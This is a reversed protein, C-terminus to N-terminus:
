GNIEDVLLVWGTKKGKREWQYLNGEKDIGLVKYDDIAIQIIHVM